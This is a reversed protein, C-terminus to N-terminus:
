ASFNLESLFQETQFNADLRKLEQLLQILRQRTEPDRKGKMWASYLDLFKDFTDMLPQDKELQLLRKGFEVLEEPQLAHKVFNMYDRRTGDLITLYREASDALKTQIEGVATSRGYMQRQYQSAFVYYRKMRIMEGESSFRKWVRHFVGMSVLLDDANVKYIWYARYRHPAKSAASYIDVDYPSLVHSIATLYEPDIYSVLLGALYANVDEDYAADNTGLNLKLRTRLIMEMIAGFTGGGGFGPVEVYPTDLRFAM